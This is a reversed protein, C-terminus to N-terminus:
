REIRDLVRTPHNQSRGIFRFQGARQVIQQAPFNEHLLRDLLLFSPTLPHSPTQQLESDLYKEPNAEFIEHEAACRLTTQLRAPNGLVRVLWSGAEAPLLM